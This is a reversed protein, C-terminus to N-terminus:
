VPLWYRNGMKPQASAAGAARSIVLSVDSENTQKLVNFPQPQAPASLPPRCFLSRHLIIIELSSCKMLYFDERWGWFELKLTKKGGWPNDCYLLSSARWWWVTDYLWRKMIEGRLIRFRPDSFFGKFFIVARALGKKKKKQKPRHPPLRLCLPSSFIRWYGRARTGQVSVGYKQM